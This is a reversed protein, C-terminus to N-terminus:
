PHEIVVRDSADLSEVLGRRADLYLTGLLTLGTTDIDGADITCGLLARGSMTAPTCHLTTGHDLTVVTSGGDLRWSGTQTVDGELRNQEGRMACVAEPPGPDRPMHTPGGSAAISVVCGTRVWHFRANGDASLTLTIDSRTSVAGCSASCCMGSRVVVQAAYTRGAHASQAHTAIPLAAIGLCALWAIRLSSM